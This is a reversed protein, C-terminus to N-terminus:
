NIYIFLYIIIFSFFIKFSTKLRQSSLFERHCHRSTLFQPPDLRLNAHQTASAAQRGAERSGQDRTPLSCCRALLRWCSRWFGCSRHLPLSAEEHAVSSPWGPSSRCRRELECSTLFENTGARSAGACWPALQRPELAQASSALERPHGIAAYRRRNSEDRLGNEPL